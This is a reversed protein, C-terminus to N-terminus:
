DVGGDRAMVDDVEGMDMEKGVGMTEDVEAKDAGRYQPMVKDGRGDGVAKDNNAWSETAVDDEAGGVMDKGVVDGEAYGRGAQGRKKDVVVGEVKNVVM